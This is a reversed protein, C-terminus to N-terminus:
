FNGGTWPDDGKISSPDFLKNEYIDLILYVTDKEGNDMWKSVAAYYYKDNIDTDQIREDWSIWSRLNPFSTKWNKNIASESDMGRFLSRIM